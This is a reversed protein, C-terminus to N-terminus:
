LKHLDVTEYVMTHIDSKRGMLARKLVMTLRLIYQEQTWGRAITLHEWHEISLLAWFFDTAEEVTWEPALDGDRKMRAVTARCGDYLAAMRAEWAAAAEPDALFAKAIGYVDPIFNAWVDVFQELSEVGPQDATVSQAREAYGVAQEVYDLTASLLGARSGFTNYVAQRSVGAAKAIDELRVDIGRRAEMLRWTESLIRERTSLQPTSM